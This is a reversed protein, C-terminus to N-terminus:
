VCFRKAAMGTYLTGTSIDVEILDALSYVIGTGAGFGIGEEHVESSVEHREPFEIRNEWAEKVEPRKFYNGKDNYSALLVLPSMFVEFHIVSDKNAGHFNANKLPEVLFNYVSTNAQSGRKAYYPVVQKLLADKAIDQVFRNRAFPLFGTISYFIDNPKYSDASLFERSKEPLNNLSM